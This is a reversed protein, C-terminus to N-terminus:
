LKRKTGCPRYLVQSATGDAQVMLSGDKIAAQNSIDPKTGSVPYPFEAEVSDIAAVLQLQSTVGVSVTYPYRGAVNRTSTLRYPFSKSTPEARIKVSLPTDFVIRFSKQVQKVENLLDIIKGLNANTDGPAIKIEFTHPAVNEVLETKRGCLNEVLMEIRAPNMPKRFNRKQIVQKRREELSMSENPHIGYSEEWYAISWTATEPFAQERLSLATDKALGLPVGMVEFLWKAIYSKDYIHSIMTMMDKAVERTPLEDLNM